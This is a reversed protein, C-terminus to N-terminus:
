DSFSPPATPARVLSRALTVLQDRDLEASSIEVRTGERQLVVNTPIPFKRKPPEWVLVREGDIDVEEWHAKAELKADSRRENLAISGLHDHHYHVMVMEPMPPKESAPQYLVDVEWSSRFGGRRESRPLEAPVWLPFSARAAADEITVDHEPVSFAEEPRRITEGAPPEFTFIQPDLEEDFAIEKVETIAFEDGDLYAAVRLLVGREADVLLEYEDAGPAHGFHLEHHRGDRPRARVRIVRRGAFQTEDLAEFEVAALLRAPSFLFLGEGSGEDGVAEHEVAGWEPMYSWSKEGDTLSVRPSPGEVEERRRSPKEFWVRVIEETTTPAPEDSESFGVMVMMSGGGSEQMQEFHREFALQQKEVDRWVRITARVTRFSEDAGHLLEFIESVDSV